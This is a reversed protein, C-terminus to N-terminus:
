NNSYPNSLIIITQVEKSNLGLKLNMLLHKFQVASIKGTNEPDLDLFALKIDKGSATLLDNIKNYLDQM